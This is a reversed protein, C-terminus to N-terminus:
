PQTVTEVISEEGTVRADCRLTEAELIDMAVLIIAPCKRGAKAANERITHLCEFSVEPCIVVESGDYGDWVSSHWIEVQLVDSLTSSLVEVYRKVTQKHKAQAPADSPDEGSYMVCVKRGKLGSMASPLPNIKPDHGDEESLRELPLKLIIDTGKMAQSCVDLQGGIDELIRRVVSLGVGTGATHQSQKHFPEFAQEQLFRPTMGVGSDSITLVVTGRNETLNESKVTVHVYGTETFKLANGFLNMVIRGFSSASLCFGLGGYDSVDLIIFRSRRKAIAQSRSHDLAPEQEDTDLTIDFPAEGVIMTEVVEETVFGVNCKPKDSEDAFLAQMSVKEASICISNDGRTITSNHNHRAEPREAHDLLHEVTELLTRGCITIANLMSSQFSDLQSNRMLHVSGLIGHLPTRLEHSLSSLFTTKAQTTTLADLRAVEQMISHGFTKLFPLDLRGDLVRETKSSWCFCGAMWRGREFDWLPLFLASKINPILAKVRATLESKDQIVTELRQGEQPSDPLHFPQDGSVQGKANLDDDSGDCSLSYGHPYQDLVWRFNSEHPTMTPPLLDGQLSSQQSTAFGLIQCRKGINLPSMCKSGGSAYSADMFMVGDMDNSRRMIDAARAFLIKTTAPLLDKQLEEASLVSPSDRSSPRPRQDPEQAFCESHSTARSQGGGVKQNQDHHARVTASPANALINLSHFQESSARSTSGGEAFSM